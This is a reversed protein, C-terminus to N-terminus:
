VGPRAVDSWHGVCFLLDLADGLKSAIRGVQFGSIGFRPVITPAHSPCDSICERLVVPRSKQVPQGCIPGSPLNGSARDFLALVEEAQEVGFASGSDFRMRSDGYLM